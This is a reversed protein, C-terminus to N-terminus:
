RERKIVEDLAAFRESRRAGRPPAFRLNPRCDAPDTFGPVFARAPAGSSAADRTFRLAETPCAAVCAPELGDDLRRVCLHCKSVVGRAEDYQPTGFPCAMECYRCGLCREDRHVVGGDARKEYARAPCGNLCAPNECHHCAVSLFYTPGGAMRFIAAVTGIM